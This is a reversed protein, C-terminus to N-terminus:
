VDVARGGAQAPSGTEMTVAAASFTIGSGQPLPQLLEMSLADGAPLQFGAGPRAAMNSRAKRRDRPPQSSLEGTLGTSYALPQSPTVAPSVPGVSAMRPTVTM